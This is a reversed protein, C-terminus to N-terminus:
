IDPFVRKSFVATNVGEARVLAVQNWHLTEEPTPTSPAANCGLLLSIGLLVATLIKCRVTM